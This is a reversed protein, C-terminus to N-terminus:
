GQLARFALLPPDNVMVIFVYILEIDAISPTVIQFKRLVHILFLSIETEAVRRGICQRVGFGFALAQFSHTHASLWRAPNYTGPDPFIEPSRGLSYLGVHVLTGAPIHYNRIIADTVPYRQLTLGVPYLRLTEKIAARLLPVNRLLSGVDGQARWHAETVERRLAEQLEPNRALEFLTFLLSHATTDVSGVMLETANAKVIDFPLGSRSLLEGLIGSYGREAEPVAQVKRLLEELCRHAHEFIDDWVQVHERWARLGLRRALWPPVYLLPITTKLMNEISRIFHDAQKTDVDGFLGLRQGYLLHFSSELAFRFLDPLVNSPETCSGTQMKRDVLLTFDHAVPELLSAINGVAAPRIVEQNLAMRERRWEGGNKLFLGRKHNRYERHEAWAELVMREPNPGETQFLAMADEPHFIYVSERTGLKDRYIPGLRQFNRNIILHQNGINRDRWLRYLNVWGSGGTSPIERYPLPQTEGSQSVRRAGAPCGARPADWIRRTLRRM